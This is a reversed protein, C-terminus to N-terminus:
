NTVSFYYSDGTVKQGACDTIVQQFEYTGTGIISVYGTFPTANSIIGGWGNMADQFPVGGPGAAPQAIVSWGGGSGAVRYRYNAVMSESCTGEDDAVQWQILNSGAVATPSGSNTSLVQNGPYSRPEATITPELDVTFYYSTSTVTQGACDTLLMQFEYTGAGLIRTFGTFGTTHSIIGGWGNQADAFPIGSPGALELDIVSWAGESGSARYQYQVGVEETCSLSEDEYRWYILNDARVATPDGADSSLGGATTYTTPELTFEPLPDYPTDDYGGSAPDKIAGLIVETAALTVAQRAAGDPHSLVTGTIIVETAGAAATGKCVSTTGDSATACWGSADMVRHTYNESDHYPYHSGPEGYETDNQDDHMRVWADNNQIAGEELHINGLVDPRAHTLTDISEGDWNLPIVIVYDHVDNSPTVTTGNDVANGLENIYQGKIAMDLQEGAGLIQGFPNLADPADYYGGEGPQAFEIPGPVVTLKGNWALETEVSDVIRTAQVPDTRFYVDCAAGDRWGSAYGHSAIVVKLAATDPISYKAIAHELMALAAEDYHASSGYNQTFSLPVRDANVHDVERMITKYMDWPKEAILADREAETAPGFGDNVDQICEAYTKGPVASVGDGNADRWHPGYNIVNAYSSALSFVVVRDVGADNILEDMATEVSDPYVTHNGYMDKNEVFAESAHRMVMTTGPAISPDTALAANVQDQINTSGNAGYYWEVVQGTYPNENNMASFHVAHAEMLGFAGQETFDDVGLGSGYPDHVHVGASPNPLAPNQTESGLLAFFVTPLFEEDSGDDFCETEFTGDGYPTPFHIVGGHATYTNTGEILGEYEPHVECNFDIISEEPVGCIQAEEASAFHVQTYCSGGEWGTRGAFFGPPLFPFLHEYYGYLWRPDYTTGEGAGVVLVGVKEASQASLPQIGLLIAALVSLVITRLKTNKM